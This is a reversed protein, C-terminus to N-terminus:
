DSNFPTPTPTPRPRDRAGATDPPRACYKRIADASYVLSRDATAWIGIPKYGARVDRCAARLADEVSEYEVEKLEGGGGEEPVMARYLIAGDPTTESEM